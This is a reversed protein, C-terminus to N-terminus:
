SGVARPFLIELLLIITVAHAGSVMLGVGFSSSLAHRYIHAHVSIIWILLVLWAVALGGMATGEQQAKVAIFVLPLGMM